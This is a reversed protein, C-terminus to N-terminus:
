GDKDEKLLDIMIGTKYLRIDNFFETKLNLEYYTNLLSIYRIQVENWDVKNWIEEYMENNVVNIESQQYPISNIYSFYLENKNAKIENIMFSYKKSYGYFSVLEEQLDNELLTFEGSNQLSQFTNNNIIPYETSALMIYPEKRIFTLGDRIFKNLTDLNANSGQLITRISDIRKNEEQAFALHYEFHSVDLLLDNILESKYIALLKQKKNNENQTNIQLAILIGIVVLIIEGIAYFLYKSLRAAPTTSSNETLLNQRIKRFFKIM